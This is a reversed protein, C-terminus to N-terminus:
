MAGVSSPSVINKLATLRDPQELLRPVANKVAIAIGQASHLGGHIQTASTIVKKVANFLDTDVEGPAQWFEALSGQYTLGNINFISRGLTKVPCRHFLAQGITTSNITVLGLAHDLLSPLHGTELFIVRGDLDLRRALADILQRYDTFGQDLPHNKIVLRTHVPAHQAFSGMTERLFKESDAYESHFRLQADGRIQLAVLYYNNSLLLDSINAADQRRIGRVRWARRIYALYEARISFTVHSPYNPYFFPNALCALNYAVDHAIRANLGSRLTAPPPDDALQQAIDRYWAAVRPLTSYNNVGDRELTVWDPRFYGEEFVHIRVGLRKAVQIAPIHVPRCDGFLVIDTTDRDKFLQEYFATLGELSVCCAISANRWYLTDGLNYNVKEVSQGKTKLAAALKSFFPSRLGQLFLFRRM